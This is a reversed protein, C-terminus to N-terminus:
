NILKVITFISRETLTATAMPKDSKLFEQNALAKIVNDPTSMSPKGSIKLACKKIFKNVIHNFAKRDLPRNSGQATFIYFNDIKYSSMIELDTFTKKVINAGEKTLFAKHNSPGQKAQDIEIWHEM